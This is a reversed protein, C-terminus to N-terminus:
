SSVKLDNVVQKVGDTELAIREALEKEARTGVTGELTVAGWRTSVNIESASVGPGFALAMKVSATTTADLVAQSFTRDLEEPSDVKGQTVQLRNHVSEVGEANRAIAGALDKQIDTPVVGELTVQGRDTNVNIRFSDLHRDFIFATKIRATVAADHISQEASREREGTQGTLPGCAGLVALMLLAPGIRAM